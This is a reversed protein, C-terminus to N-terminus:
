TSPLTVRAINRIRLLVETTDFPKAVFDRAGLELVGRKAEATPDGTLMLVPLYAVGSLRPALQRLVEYGDIHPMHLDLPPPNPYM